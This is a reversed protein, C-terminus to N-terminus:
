CVENGAELIKFIRKRDAASFLEKTDLQPHMHASFDDTHLTLEQGGLPYKIKANVQITDKRDGRSDQLVIDGEFRKNAIWERIDIKKWYLLEDHTVDGSDIDDQDYVQFEIEFANKELHIRIVEDVCMCNAGSRAYTKTHQSNCVFAKGKVYPYNVVIYPNIKRYFDSEGKENFNGRIITLELTGCVSVHNNARNHKASRAIRTKKKIKTAHLPDMSEHKAETVTATTPEFKRLKRNEKLEYYYHNILLVVVVGAYLNLIRVPVLVSPILGFIISNMVMYVLFKNVHQPFSSKLTRKMLYESLLDALSSHLANDVISPLADFEAKSASGLKESIVTKMTNGGVLKEIKKSYRWDLVSAIYSRNALKPDIIQVLAASIFCIAVTFNAFLKTSIITSLILILCLEHKKLKFSNRIHDMDDFQIRNTSINVMTFDEGIISWLIM